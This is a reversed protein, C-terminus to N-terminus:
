RRVDAHHDPEDTLILHELAYQRGAQMCAGERVQCVQVQEMCTHAKSKVSEDCCAHCRGRDILIVHM